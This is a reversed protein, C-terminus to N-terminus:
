SGAPQPFQGGIANTVEDAAARVLTGHAEDRGRSVRVSPGSLSIGAVAEGFQNFVPAAVCRMGLTREEDDIAWGRARTRQLEAIVDRGDTLTNPTFRQLKARLIAAVRDAAFYAMMAKGIGSAHIPGRTGPRFFARIPEHTEVQSVFIVDNRDVIALNATEGSTTMMEQMIPRSQEVISTRGLFTSGIRFAALGIYWLQGSEAFEVVGHKQLTTLMRYTTSAPHGSAEAIETLSMGNGRSVVKLVEIGRDLSQILTSESAGHFSRPRGRARGSEAM